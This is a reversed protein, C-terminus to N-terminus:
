EGVSGAQEKFSIVMAKAMEENPLEFCWCITVKCGERDIKIKKLYRQMFSMGMQWEEPKITPMQSM